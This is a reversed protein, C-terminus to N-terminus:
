NRSRENPGKGDNSMAHNNTEPRDNAPPGGNMRKQKLRRTIGDQDEINDKITEERACMSRKGKGKHSASDEVGANGDTDAIDGDMNATDGDMDAANGDMNAMGDAQLDRITAMDYASTNGSSGSSLEERVRVGVESVEPFTRRINADVTWNDQNQTYTEFEATLRLRGDKTCIVVAQDLTGPWCTLAADGMQGPTVWDRYHRMLAERFGPSSRTLINRSWSTEYLALSM